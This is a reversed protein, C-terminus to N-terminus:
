SHQEEREPMSKALYIAYELPASYLIDALEPNTQFLVKRGPKSNTDLIWLAHDKSVGIDIGLEFLSPFSSELIGPLKSLIENLELIMFASIKRPLSAVYEEFPMVEGGAHLNSVIGNHKGRRIGKGRIVWNGLSNKQLLVRIDFPRNEIDTLSYYPQVLYDRKIFLQNLWAETETQSHFMDVTLSGTFDAEIKFTRGSCQITYLGNGGSGFAPKLVIKKWKHLKEIVSKSEAAKETEPVYPSLASKALIEYISWKNPLGNGLFTLDERSKLWQVIALTQKSRLDDTYFCRDYLIKPVPFEDMVWEEKHSDFRQGQVLHSVPHITAPTFCYCTINSADARKAIETFYSLESKLTLAMMGFSIM